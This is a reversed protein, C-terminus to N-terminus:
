KAPEQPEPAQEIDILAKLAIVRGSWQIAANEANEQQQQADKLLMELRDATIQM